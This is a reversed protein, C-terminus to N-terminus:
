KGSEWWSVNAPVTRTTNSGCHVEGSLRHYLDWDEIWSVGVSYKALAQTLQAQFIDSGNIVPGHPKPAAFVKDGLYIGNVMGPQYALSYGSAKEHLFAVPVIEADTLGTEKKMISVQDAVKVAAWASENMVDTDNLIGSVTTQASSNNSWYKGVFVAASGNGATKQQELMKKALPADNVLMVWGRPGPAKIFSMTEDVHGVLLWSTDVYVIGQVGQSTIMKDFAKDPYFSSHSGRLVRGVPWSQNNATYPPITELNGFSNLTDMGDSHAPDYVVAGAVDKGRLDTFVVKGATRLKGSTYNASRFNVHIVKKGGGGVAPMAMYATEFFDQTWQDSAYIDRVQAGAKAAADALDNRFAISANSNFKTVYYTSAPDLHHRFMVPSLRLRVTDSGLGGVTFTLDVEGNWVASDRVITLGEIALELGTQLEAASIVTGSKYEAFSAGSKKFLRVYKSAASSVTISGTSNASAIPATKIRALDALDDTGNVVTDAADNCAALEADTGTKPCALQDDDINALFVAGHSANWNGEDNDESPDNFDITGNRNTDARLDV